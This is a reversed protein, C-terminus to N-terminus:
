ARPKRCLVARTASRTGSNAVHQCCLSRTPLPALAHLVVCQPPVDRVAGAVCGTAAVIGPLLMAKLVDKVSVSGEKCGLGPPLVEGPLQQQLRHLLIAENVALAGTVQMM